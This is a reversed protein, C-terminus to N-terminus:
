KAQSIIRAPNGAVTCNEPINHVVVAGAGIVSNSGVSIGGIVTANAAIWVNDGIVPLSTNLTDSHKGFGITVGQGCTFHEDIREARIVCGSKHFLRMGQGINQTIIEIQELPPVFLMVIKTSIPNLKARYAFVSRYEKKGMLCYCLYFVGIRPFPVEKQYRKLDGIFRQKNRLFVLIPLLLFPSFLISGLKKMHM